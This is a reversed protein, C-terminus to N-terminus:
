RARELKELFQMSPEVSDDTTSSQLGHLMAYFGRKRLLEEHNGHELIRGAEVVFIVDASRITSLRHAIVISTKGKMLRGLAELVLKESAADLGSSVEDL